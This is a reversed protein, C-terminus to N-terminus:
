RKVTKIDRNLLGIEYGITLSVMGRGFANQYTIDNARQQYRVPSMDAAYRIDAFLTGPLGKKFQSMQMGLNIGAVWGFALTRKYDTDKSEAGPRGDDIKLKGLPLVFYAGGFPAILFPIPRFTFKLLVPLMFSYFTYTVNYDESGKFPRFSATDMTFLTEIQLSLFPLMQLSGQLGGEFAPAMRSQSTDFFAGSGFLDEAKATPNYLRLSGGLRGGVYFWKDEDEFTPAPSRQGRPVITDEIV